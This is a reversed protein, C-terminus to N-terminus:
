KVMPHFSFVQEVDKSVATQTKEYFWVLFGMMPLDLQAECKFMFHLIDVSLLSLSKALSFM